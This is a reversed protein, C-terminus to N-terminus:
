LFNLNKQSGQAVSKVLKVKSFGVYDTTYVSVDEKALHAASWLEPARDSGSIQMPQYGMSPSDPDM